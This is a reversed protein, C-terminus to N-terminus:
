DMSTGGHDRPWISFGGYSVWPTTSARPVFAGRRRAEIFSKLSDSHVRDMPLAAIFPMLQKLHLGDDVISAKHANDLLYKAAAEEFSRRPRVGYVAAKRIEELRHTLYQEAYELRSTGTSERLRGGPLEKVRKDVHWVGGRLRLGPTSKRPM